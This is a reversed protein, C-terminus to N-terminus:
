ILTHDYLRITTFHHKDATKCRPTMTTKSIVVISCLGGYDNEALSSKSFNLSANKKLIPSMM